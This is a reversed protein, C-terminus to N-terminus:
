HAAAPAPAFGPMIEDAFIRLAAISPNPNVLLVYEVGGAELRKLQEVIEARTGLLPADDIERPPGAFNRPDTYREAGSCASSSPESAAVISGTEIGPLPGITILFTSM